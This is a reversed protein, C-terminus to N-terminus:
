PQASTRLWQHVYRVMFFLFIRMKRTTITRHQAEIFATVGEIFSHKAFSNQGAVTVMFKM